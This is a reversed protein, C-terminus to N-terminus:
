RIYFVSQFSNSLFLIVFCVFYDSLYRDASDLPFGDFIWTDNGYWRLYDDFDFYKFVFFLMFSLVFLFKSVNISCVNFKCNYKYLFVGSFWIPMLLWLKYGIFLFVISSLFLRVKGKFYYVTSFFIYYWVEYSLSWYPVLLPPKESFFWIEGLFGLHFQIYIYLKELQYNDINLFSSIYYYSFFSVLLLPFAVSYIRSLRAVYYDVLSEKKIHTTYAIVYGSLVFFLIVSERGLEPFYFSLDYSIIDNQIFHAIVVLVAGSFRLFDLYISFSKNM